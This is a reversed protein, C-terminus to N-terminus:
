GTSVLFNRNPLPRSKVEYFPLTGFIGFICYFGFFFISIEFFLNRCLSGVVWDFWHVFNWSFGDIVKAYMAIRTRVSFLSYLVSFLSRLVFLRLFITNSNRVGLPRFRVWFFNRHSRFLFFSNVRYCYIEKPVGSMYFFIM